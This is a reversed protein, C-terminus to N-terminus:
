GKPFIGQYGIFLLSLTAVIWNIMLIFTPVLTFSGLKSEFVAIVITIFNLYIMPVNEVCNLNNEVFDGNNVCKEVKALSV